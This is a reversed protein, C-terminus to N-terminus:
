DENPTIYNLIPGQFIISGGYAIGIGLLVLLINVPPLGPASIYLVFLLLLPLVVTAALNGLEWVAEIREHRDLNQWERRIEEKKNQLVSIM